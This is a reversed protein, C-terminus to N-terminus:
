MSPAPQEQYKKALEPDYPARRGICAERPCLQCTEFKIDTPFYIGSLSKIPVMMLSETLRVGILQEVDGFLSHLLKQQTIPWISMSGPSMKAIQGIAYTTVLHGDLYRVAIKLVIEKIADLCYARMLDDPPATIEDLERGCTAVYPFVRGVKDLNKRLIRSTFKVGDIYVSDEAKKDIYAIKYTAKPRAKPQVAQILEEVIEDIYSNERRVGMRRRVEQPDIKVPIQDLVKIASASSEQKTM